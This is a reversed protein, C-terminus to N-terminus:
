RVRVVVTGVIKDAFTQKKEDWLPWLYGLYLFSDVVHCLSRVFAMGFGTPMGDRERLVSIGVAKKGPTQGTKGQRYLSWFTLVFSLVFGAGVMVLGGTTMGTSQQCYGQSDEYTSCDEYGTIWMVVGAVMLIVPVLGLILGDLLTAGVRAGWGALPPRQQVAYPDQPHGGYGYAGYAGPQQPFPPHQPYPQGPQQPPGYGPPPPPYPPNPHTM